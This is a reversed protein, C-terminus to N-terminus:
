GSARHHASFHLPPADFEHSPGGVLRGKLASDLAPKCQLPRTQRGWGMGLRELSYLGVSLMMV